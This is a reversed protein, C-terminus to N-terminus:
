LYHSHKTNFDIIQNKEIEKNLYIRNKIKMNSLLCKTNIYM